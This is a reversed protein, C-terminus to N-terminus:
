WTSIHSIVLVGDFVAAICTDATSGLMHMSYPFDDRLSFFFEEPLVFVGLLRSSM